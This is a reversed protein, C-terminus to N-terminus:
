GWRRRWRARDGSPRWRRGVASSPGGRARACSRASVASSRSTSRRLGRARPRDDLPEITALSRRRAPLAPAVPPAAPKRRGRGQLAETSSSRPEARDRAARARAPQGATATARARKLVDGDGRGGRRLHHAQRRPPADRVFTIFFQSGDTGPGANAQSLIGPRDHRTAGQFEGDFRYGPSGRGNGLPDGGQAMFNPIVRHFTLGDYFDLRTLYIASSVHMPADQPLFRLKMTGVNTELVWTYTKAPDFSLMPPKPLRTKWSATSKDIAQEAIFADIQELADGGSPAAAAPEAASPPAGSDPADACALSAFPVIALATCLSRISSRAPRRIM